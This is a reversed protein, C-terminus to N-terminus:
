PRARCLSPSAAGAGPAGRVRIGGGHDTVIRHVIALGLGTGRPKTTFYPTFIKARAETASAPATTPSTSSSAVM